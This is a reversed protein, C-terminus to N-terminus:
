DKKKKSPGIGMGFPRIGIWGCDRMWKKFGYSKVKDAAFNQKKVMAFSLKIFYWFSIDVM